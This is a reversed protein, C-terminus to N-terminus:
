SWTITYVSGHDPKCYKKPFYVGYGLAVLEDFFKPSWYGFVEVKKVPSKTIAKQFSKALHEYHPCEVKRLMTTATEPDPIM